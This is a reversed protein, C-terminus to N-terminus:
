LVEVIFLERVLLTQTKNTNLDQTDFESDASKKQDPHNTWWAKVMIKDYLDILVYMGRLKM